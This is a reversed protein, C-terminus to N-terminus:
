KFGINQGILSWNKFEESSLLLASGKQGGNGHWSYFHTTDASHTRWILKTKFVVKLVAARTTLDPVQKGLTTM